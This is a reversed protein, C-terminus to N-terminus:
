FEQYVTRMPRCGTRASLSSSCLNGTKMRVHRVFDQVFARDIHKAAVFRFGDIGFEEVCWVGWSLLDERRTTESISTSSCSMTTAGMKRAPTPLSRESGDDNRILYIGREGKTNDYDIGNLHTHNWKLRSYKEKRVDFHFM